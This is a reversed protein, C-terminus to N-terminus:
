LNLSAVVELVLQEDIPKVIIAKAGIEKAQAALNDKGVSTVMVVNANPDAEIIQKLCDLGTVEPMIVDLTIADPKHKNYLYLGELGNSGEAVVKHGNNELIGKLFGRAIKSDDILVFKAM